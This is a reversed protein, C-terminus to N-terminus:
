EALYAIFQAPRFVPLGLQVEALRFDKVNHTVVVANANLACDIVLDDGPDPSSPRWTFYIETRDVMALLRKLTPQLKEWRRQSLLRGFVDRYELMLTTSACATFQNQEWLQMVFASAGGQKTLGEFVVNTDIVARM